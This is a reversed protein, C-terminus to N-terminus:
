KKRNDYEEAKKDIWSGTAKAADETTVIIAKLLKEGAKGTSQLGKAAANKLVKAAQRVTNEYEQATMNKAAKQPTIDKVPYGYYSNYFLFVIDAIQNEEKTLPAGAEREVDKLYDRGDQGGSSFVPLFALLFLAIFIVKTYARNNRM